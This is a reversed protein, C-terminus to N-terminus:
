LEVKSSFILNMMKGLTNEKLIKEENQKMRFGLLTGIQKMKQIVTRTGDQHQSEESELLNPFM